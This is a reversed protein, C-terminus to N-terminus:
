LNREDVGFHIRGLWNSWGNSGIVVGLYCNCM